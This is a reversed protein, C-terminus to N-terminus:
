TSKASLAVTVTTSSSSTPLTWAASFEPDKLAEKLVHRELAVAAPGSKNLTDTLITVYLKKMTSTPADFFRLCAGFVATSLVNHVVSSDEVPGRGHQVDEKWDANWTIRSSDTLM